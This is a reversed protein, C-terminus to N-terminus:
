SLCPIQECLGLLDGEWKEMYITRERAESGEINKSRTIIPTSKMQGSYVVGIELANCKINKYDITIESIDSTIKFDRILCICDKDKCKANDPGRVAINKFRLISTGKNFVVIATEKDMVLVTSEIEGRTRQKMANIQETLSGFSDLAKDSLRYYKAFIVCTPIWIMLAILIALLFKLAIAKKNM